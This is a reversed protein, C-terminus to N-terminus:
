GDHYSREIQRANDAGFHAEAYGRCNDRLRALRERDGHLLKVTRVIESARPEIIIGVSQDVAETVAGVDSAIVPNGCSLSELIVRPIGEGSLSPFILVDAANYYVPLDRSRMPGVFGINSATEASREVQSMLPGEGAFVFYMDRKESLTRAVDLLAKVGKEVILRGVFLAVFQDGWGLQKRCKEKSLPRFVEQDVWYVFVGTRSEDVGLGILEDQSRESLCLVRDHSSFVRRAVRRMLSDGEGKFGYISHTSVVSRKRFLKSLISGAVGCVLGQAHIVDIRQGNRLLFLFGHAFIGPFLYLFELSPHSQLKFFLNHGFWGIRRVTVNGDIELPLGRARTTIPQYTIVSVSHGAEALYKCLDDLHTELGGINPRFGLSLILVSAKKSVM